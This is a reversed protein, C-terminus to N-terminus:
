VWIKITSGTHDEYVLPGFTITSRLARSGLQRDIDRRVELGFGAPPSLGGESRGGGERLSLRRRFEEISDPPAQDDPHLTNGNPLTSGGSTYGSELTDEEPVAEDPNLGGWDTPYSDVDDEGSSSGLEVWLKNAAASLQAALEDIDVSEGDSGARDGPPPPEAGAQCRYM